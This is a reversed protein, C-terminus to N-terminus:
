AEDDPVQIYFVICDCGDVTCERYGNRHEDSVHGCECEDADSM